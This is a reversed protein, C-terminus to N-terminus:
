DNTLEFVHWLKESSKHYEDLYCLPTMLDLVETIWTKKLFLIDKTKNKRIENYIEALVPFMPRFGIQYIGGIIPPLFKVHRSIKLNAKSFAQEWESLTKANKTLNRVTGRDLQHFLKKQMKPLASWIEHKSQQKDPVVLVLRGKKSLIRSLEKLVLFLKEPNTWFLNPAWIIKQSEDEFPLDKNIKVLMLKKYLHLRRAKELHATKWSVGHDIQISPKKLVVKLDIAKCKSFYDKTPNLMKKLNSLDYYDDYNFKIEGGLMAFTNIGDTCGYELVPSEKLPGLLFKVAALEYADWLAREPRLWMSVILRKFLRETENSFNYKEM